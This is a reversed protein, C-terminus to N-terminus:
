GRARGRRPAAGGTQAAGDEAAAENGAQAVGGEAVAENGAPESSSVEAAPDEHAAQTPAPLPDAAPAPEHPRAIGRRVLQAAVPEAFSAVEGAMYPPDARLFLVPTNRM